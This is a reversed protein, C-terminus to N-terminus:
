ARVKSFYHAITNLMEYTGFDMLDPFIERILLILPFATWCVISFARATKLVRM